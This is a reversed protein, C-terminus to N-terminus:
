ALCHHLMDTQAASIKLANGRATHERVKNTLTRCCVYM